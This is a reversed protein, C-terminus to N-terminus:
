ASRRQGAWGVQYLVFWTVAIAVLAAATDLAIFWVSESIEGSATAAIVGVVVAFVVSTVVRPRRDDPGWRLLWFAFIVGAFLPIMEWM